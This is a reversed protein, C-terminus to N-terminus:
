RPARPRGRRRGATARAGPAAPEPWEGGRTLSLAFTFRDSRATTVGTLIPVGAPDHLTYRVLILPSRPPLGLIAAHAESVAGAEFELATRAVAIGHRGLLPFVFEGVLDVGLREALPLPLYVTDISVPEGGALVLKEHRILAQGRRLGLRAAAAADVVRETALVKSAPEFGARRIEDGISTSADARLVRVIRQRNTVFVGRGQRGYVVGEFALDRIARRVTIPSVGFERVLEAESPIASAPPYRGEAIRRRLEDAVSAYLFASGPAPAEAGARERRGRTTARAM